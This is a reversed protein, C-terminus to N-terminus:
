ICSLFGTQSSLFFIHVSSCSFWFKALAHTSVQACNLFYVKLKGHSSHWLAFVEILNFQFLFVGPLPLQVCKFHQQCLLSLLQCFPWYRENYKWMPQWFCSYFQHQRKSLFNFNIWISCDCFSSGHMQQKKESKQACLWHESDSYKRLRFFSVMIKKQNIFVHFFTVDMCCNQQMHDALFCLRANKKKFLELDKCCFLEQQACADELELPISSIWNVNSGPADRLGQNEMFLACTVRISKALMRIGNWWCTSKGVIKPSKPPFRFSFINVFRRQLGIRNRKCQESFIGPSHRGEVDLQMEYKRLCFLGVRFTM